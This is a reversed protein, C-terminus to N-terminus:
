VDFPPLPQPPPWPTTDPPCLRPDCALAHAIELSSLAHFVIRPLQLELPRSQTRTSRGLWRFGGLRTM